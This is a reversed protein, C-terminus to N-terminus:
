MSDSDNNENVDENEEDSSDYQASSILIEMAEKSFSKSKKARKNRSCSILPDSTLLLRNLVDRNCDIRSFKRAFDIRYKRLHKNRAESAEESLQGIPLIAQEIVEAGHMLIKHVTPSM